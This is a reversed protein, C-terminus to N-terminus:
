NEFGFVDELMVAEGIPLGIRLVVFVGVAGSGAGFEGGLVPIRGEDDGGVDLEELAEM